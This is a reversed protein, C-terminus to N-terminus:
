SKVKIGIAELLQNDSLLVKAYQIYDSYIPYLEDFARDRTDTAMQAEAIEKRQSEKLAQLDDIAQKQASVAAADISITAAKALLEPSAELQAYFNTILDKWAAYAKPKAVDLKLISQAHVDGKFLIKLLGRDKTFVADIEARKADFKETEAFQDAYEKTQTQQLTELQVVDEKIASIKEPTYGVTQMVEVIGPLTANGFTLKMKGIWEATSVYDRPQPKPAETPSNETTGM